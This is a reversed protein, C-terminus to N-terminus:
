LFLGAVGTMDRMARIRGIKEFTIFNGETKGAMVTFLHGETFRVATIRHLGGRARTTVIGVGRQLGIEQLGANMRDNFFNCALFAMVRRAGLFGEFGLFLAALEAVLAM